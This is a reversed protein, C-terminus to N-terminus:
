SPLEALLQQLKQPDVPKTLHVNFGAKMARQQDEQQGYGTLAILYADNIVPKKRLANAVAYGDLSGPLGIDCIVVEPRFKQASELGQDGNLAVRLEHGALELLMRMSEAADANDEIVLIRRSSRSTLVPKQDCSPEPVATELPLTITVETGCNLGASHATVTGHHMEVFGKVLALGIGLGGRSRALSGDAQSFVDFLRSLIEKEMGIGSDKITVVARGASDKKVRVAITGGADTFKLCNSLVNSITQSLRTSDATMWLPESTSSFNLNLGANEIAKHYDEVVGHMLDTFNIRQKKLIVKGRSVRAVDLLDDVLRSIQRVQRDTIELAKARAAESVPMKLIQLGNTIPALPNRLEHGLMALFDDRQRIMNRVEYQRRRARLAGTVASILTVLRFPRELLTVNGLGLADISRASTRAEEGQSVMLLIPIDSWPPQNSLIKTLEANFTLTLAEEAILIAGAGEGFKSRLENEDQCISCQIHVKELVARANVADSGTPALVLLRCENEPEQRM